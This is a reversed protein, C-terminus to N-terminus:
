EGKQKVGKLKHYYYMGPDLDLKSRALQLIEGDGEDDSHYIASPFSKFARM